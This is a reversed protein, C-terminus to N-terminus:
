HLEDGLFRINILTNVNVFPAPFFLLFFHNQAKIKKPMNKKFFYKRLECNGPYVWKARGFFYM